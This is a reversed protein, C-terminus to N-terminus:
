IRTVWQTTTSGWMMVPLVNKLNVNRVTPPIMKSQVDSKTQWENVTTDNKMTATCEWQFVVWSEYRPGDRSEVIIRVSIKIASVETKTEKWFSLFWVM